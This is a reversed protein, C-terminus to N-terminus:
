AKLKRSIENCQWYHKNGECVTKTGGITMRLTARTGSRPVCVTPPNSADVWGTDTASMVRAVPPEVGQWSRPPTPNSGRGPSCPGIIIPLM